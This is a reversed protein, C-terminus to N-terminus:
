SAVLPLVVAVWSTAPRVERAWGTGKGKGGKGKAGQGKDVGGKGM